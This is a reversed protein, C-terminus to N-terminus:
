TVSRGGGALLFECRPGHARSLRSDLTALPAFLAEAVAVYGADYVTVHSRLEWIRRAFPGYGALDVPLSVLDAHALSATDSGIVRAAELRRLTDAAEFPMVQPATIGGRALVERAWRGDTGGDVLAAVVVSADVVTTV